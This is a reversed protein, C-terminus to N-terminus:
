SFILFRSARSDSGVSALSDASSRTAMLHSSPHGNDAGPHRRQHQAPPPLHTAVGASEGEGGSDTEIESHSDRDAPDPYRRGAQEEGNQLPSPERPLVPRAQPAEEAPLPDNEPIEPRAHDASEAERNPVSTATSATLARPTTTTTTTPPLPPPPPPPPGTHQSGQSLDEDFDMELDLSSLWLRDETSGGSLTGSM